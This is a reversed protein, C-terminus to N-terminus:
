ERPLCTPALTVILVTRGTQVPEATTVLKTTATSVRTTTLRPQTLTNSHFSHLRHSHYRNSIAFSTWQRCRSWSATQAYSHPTHTCTLDYTLRFPVSDCRWKSNERNHFLTRAWSMMGTRGGGCACCMKDAVFAETDFLSCKGPDKTTATLHSNKTCKHSSHSCM